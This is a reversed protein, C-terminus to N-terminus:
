RTGFRYITTHRYTTGPELVTSPFQPQNPSDPFHQTELCFGAHKVYVRGDRGRLSGDLMNGSYFQVGPQTTYVDMVRGSGPEYAQATHTLGNDERDLVWCHDYGGSAVRLQEDDQHIRAGIPVPERFDMPTGAVPRLDGLPISTADIPLFRGAFLRLEHGLITDDAGLNFYTHNTLNAITPRDTEATYDIRLENRDTLSYVVTVDLNGPYGEEGDPSHYTLRLHEEGDASEPQAQWVVKDFGRLGGHLHNPGNNQALTYTTEGLRFAGGAIRNGYRGILAGFYPHGALYPELADFGLTVDALHGDRDPTRLGVIIGGYTMIRADLGAQNTLTFVDVPMGDTTIGFQERTISMALEGSFHQEDGKVPQLWELPNQPHETTFSVVSIEGGPEKWSYVPSSTHRHIVTM